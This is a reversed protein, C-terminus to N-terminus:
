PLVVDAGERPAWSCWADPASLDGTAALARARCGGGCHDYHRCSWCTANGDLARLREFPAGRTWLELFTREALSGADFKPGLLSCPNVQGAPTVSAVLNGAVCGFRELVLASTAQHPVEPPHFLPISAHPQLRDLERAAAEFDAQAPLLDPRGRARGAPLAPRLTLSAAGADECRRVLEGLRGRLGPTFTTTVGVQGRAALRRLGELARAFAGPGRVLDHAAGDPGDLSVSVCRFPRAALADALAETVLTGNTTLLVNLGLAFAEDLAPLLEPHLLPEGGTVHVQMCGLDALERFLRRMLAGDLAGVPGPGSDSSCHTCALNCGQTAGLYVTLPASLRDPASRDAVVRALLRGDDDLLGEPVLAALFAAEVPGRAAVPGGERAVLLAAAEPDYPVYRCTERDYVLAGFHERRLVHRPGAGPAAFSWAPVVERAPASTTM